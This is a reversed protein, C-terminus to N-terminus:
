AIVGLLYSASLALALFGLFLRLLRQPVHPQLSAGIYGGVLGGLGCSIGLLWDPSAGEHGTVSLLAYALAGVCSTVFTSLLAAPAVEKLIYGGAVLVPALLSGGGIGYIGGVLGASFGLIAVVRPTFPTLRRTPRRERVLLWLGLPFLFVAVLVKFLTGDPLLLVRVFAGVVVGPLTGVLLLRALSSASSIDRGYRALAGPVAIVNYLLNTPTVAPSPVNLVSLQVPLLFVAGSVGVPATVTAIAVSFAFAVGLEWEVGADNRTSRVCSRPGASSAKKWRLLSRVIRLSETLTKLPSAFSTTWSCSCPM